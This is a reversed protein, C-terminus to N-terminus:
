RCTHCVVGKSLVGAADSHAYAEAYAPVTMLVAGLSVIFIIPFLIGFFSLVFIKVPSTNAPLRCNYDAASFTCLDVIISAILLPVISVRAGMRCVVFIYDGRLKFYGSCSPSRGPRRLSSPPFDPLRTYFSLFKDIALYCIILLFLLLCLCLLLTYIRYSLWPPVSRFHM